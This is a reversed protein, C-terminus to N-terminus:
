MKLDTDAKALEMALAIADNDRQRFANYKVKSEEYLGQSSSPTFPHPTFSSTSFFVLHPPASLSLSLDPHM